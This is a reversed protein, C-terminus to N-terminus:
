YDKIQMAGLCLTVPLGNRHMINSLRSLQNRYTFDQSNTCSLGNLKWLHDILHLVAPKLSKIHHRAIVVAAHPPGVNLRAAFLAFYGSVVYLM